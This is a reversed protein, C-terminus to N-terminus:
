QLRGGGFHYFLGHDVNLKHAKDYLSVGCYPCHSVEIVTRWITEGIYENLGNELLDQETAECQVFLQWVTEDRPSEEDDCIISVGRKPMKDCQHQKYQEM